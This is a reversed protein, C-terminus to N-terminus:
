KWWSLNRFMHVSSWFIRICSIFNMQNKGILTMFDLVFDKLEFVFGLSVWFCYYFNFFVVSVGEFSLFWGLIIWFFTVLIGDIWQNEYFCCFIGHTDLFTVLEVWSFVCFFVLECFNVFIAPLQWFEILLSLDM